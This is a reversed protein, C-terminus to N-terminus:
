PKKGTLNLKQEVQGMRWELVNTTTKIDNLKTSISENVVKQERDSESIRRHINSLQDTTEKQGEALLAEMQKQGDKISSSFWGNFLVAASVLGSLVLTFVWRPVLTRMYEDAKAIKGCVIARHDKTDIDHHEWMLDHWPCKEHDEHRRGVTREVWEPKYEDTM